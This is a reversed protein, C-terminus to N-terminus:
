NELWKNSDLYKSIIKALTGKKELEILFSNIFILFDIEDPPIIVSINEEKYNELLPLFQQNLQPNQILLAQIYIKDSIFLDNEQIIISNLAENNSNYTILQHIKFNEDELILKEYVTDKKIAIKLKPLSGIEKLSQFKKRYFDVALSERPLKNKNLLGAPTTTIYPYSFNVALIRESDLSIGGFSLDLKKESTWEILQQIEGYVIKYPIDMTRSLLELIEIDIGPYTKNGTTYPIKNEQLGVLIEGRQYIKSFLGKRNKKALDKYPNGNINLIIIFFVLILLYIKKVNMIKM